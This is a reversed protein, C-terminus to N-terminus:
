ETDGIAWDGLTTGQDDPGEIDPWDSFQDHRGLFVAGAIGIVLASGFLALWDAIAGVIVLDTM